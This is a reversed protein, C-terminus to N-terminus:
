LAEAKARRPVLALTRALDAILASPDELGIHLRIVAPCERWDTVSRIATMESLTALSEFGGWSAGIGFLELRDIVDAATQRSRDKLSVSILGNTGSFDRRWLAHGPHEPLAPCFVAEVAEHNQLWKAVQLAHEQHMQLRAALSRAGRLVLWSDDPSVAVGMADCCAGLRPWLAETCTAAGMMVDAHGGLYKTAASVSIDAGLALPRYLVGAGWSNDAAVLIGRPRAIAAIKPLDCLEYVVSGPCELYIMRTSPLIKEELDHGDAAFYDYRIGFRDFFHRAFNRVPDYVSDGILLHDGPELLAIFMQAIAALGTPFLRTRYGGELETILDELAFGTVNGRAGYSLLRESGRRARIDQMHAVSDFLVTSMRVVPPNVPIGGEVPSHRGSHVLRTLLTKDNM